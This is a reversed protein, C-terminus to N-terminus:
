LEWSLMDVILTTWSFDPAGHGEGTHPNYHERFGSREVMTASRDVITRALDRRGHAILGRCIYWNSSMWSPGRWVLKSGEEGPHFSAANLPVTPIPFAAGYLTEDELQAILRAAREPALEPFLLPFFSTFTSVRISTEALGFRDFFLGHEDDWCKSFLAERTKDARARMTAANTADGMVDYLAALVGQNHAYITNVMVDELVFVDLAFMKQPDRGVREYPGAVRNWGAAYDDLVAVPGAFIGLVEDFKPTMDLGTEDAQLVAILGDRDPDRVRDCWDYYARVKPLLEALFVRGGGRRYVAEVAEALLPPQMCDSLYPTRYAIAYTALMDEFRERQWFTVHAVFGDPQQHQLLCRIEGAAREVDVHSLSVAHFCSDWFWQFPYTLMSPCVFDYDLNCWAAHGRQRNRETVARVAIKMKEFRDNAM